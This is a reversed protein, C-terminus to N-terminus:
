SPVKFNYTKRGEDMKGDSFSINVIWGTKKFENIATALARRHLRHKSSTVNYYAEDPELYSPDVQTTLITNIKTIYEDILGPIEKSLVVEQPTIPKIM